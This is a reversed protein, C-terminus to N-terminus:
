IPKEMVWDRRVNEGVMFTHEGVTKFGMKEYFRKARANNEWVGLWLSGGGNERAMESAKNVLEGAIGSGHYEDEIYLRNLEVPHPLTLCAERSNFILQAVGAVKEGDDTVILFREDPSSISKGISETSLKTM